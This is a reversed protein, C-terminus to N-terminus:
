RSDNAVAENVVWDLTKFWAQSLHRSADMHSFAHLNVRVTQFGGERIRRLHRPQFRAKSPDKWLPDYGIINFGRGM